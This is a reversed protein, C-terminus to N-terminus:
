GWVKARGVVPVTVRHALTEVFHSRRRTSAVAVSCPRVRGCSCMVGQATHGALIADAARIQERAYAAFQPASLLSM